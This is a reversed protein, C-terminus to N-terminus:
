RRGLRKGNRPRYENREQTVHLRQAQVAARLLSYNPHRGNLRAGDDAPYETRVPQGNSLLTLRKQQQAPPM